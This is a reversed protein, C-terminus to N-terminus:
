KGLALVVAARESMSEVAKMDPKKARMFSPTQEHVAQLRSVMLGMSEESTKLRSLWQKSKSQFQYGPYIKKSALTDETWCSDDWSVNGVHELIKDQVEEINICCFVDCLFMGNDVVCM